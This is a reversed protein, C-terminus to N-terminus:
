SLFIRQLWNAIDGIEENCVSHGMSYSHWQVLYKNRQLVDQTQLGLTYPLITDQTGHALFIPTTFNAANAEATFKEPSPLYTSLAMIGALSNPYRLGTALAIVGGQSFGALIIKEPPIGREIEQAILKELQQVSEAVGKEDVQRQASETLSYIDFWARMVYGNNITVPQMPAHPFIFRLPMEDPLNLEQVIPVFDHGDAGLGHLWIVSGIANQTPNIEIYESTSKM